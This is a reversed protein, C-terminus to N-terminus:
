RRLCMRSQYAARITRECFFKYKKFTACACMLNLNFVSSVLYWNVYLIHIYIFSERFARKSLVVMHKSPWVVVSCPVCWVCFSPARAVAGVFRLINRNEDALLIRSLDRHTSVAWIRVTLAKATCARVCKSGDCTRHHTTHPSHSRFGCESLATPSYHTRNTM